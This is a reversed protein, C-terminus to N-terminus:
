TQTRHPNEAMPGLAKDARGWSRCSPTRTTLVRRTGYSMSDLQSQSLAWVGAPSRHNLREPLLSSEGRHHGVQGLFLTM